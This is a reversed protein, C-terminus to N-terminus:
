EFLGKSEKYDRIENFLKETYDIPRGEFVQVGGDECSILIKFRDIATGTRDQWMLSYATAQLFYNEIDGRRKTRTSGKFDIISLTGDHEAVCDVRGALGVSTSWLPVELAVINDIKDLEPKLQLFLELINPFVTDRDRSLIFENNLYDEILKHFTNGRSTVRKAERPNKARWKAFFKSKKYGTVTTVSPLKGTPTSYYRGSNDTVASIEELLPSDVHKFM